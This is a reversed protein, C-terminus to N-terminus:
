LLNLVKKCKPDHPLLHQRILPQELIIVSLEFWDNHNRIENVRIENLWTFFPLFLMIVVLQHQVGQTSIDGILRSTMYRVREAPGFIDCYIPDVRSVQIRIIKTSQTAVQLVDCEIATCQYENCQLYFCFPILLLFQMNVNPSIQPTM